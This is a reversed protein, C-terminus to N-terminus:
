NRPFKKSKARPEIRHHAAPLTGTVLPAGPSGPRPQNASSGEFSANTPAVSWSTCSTVSIARRCRSFPDAATPSPSGNRTAIMARRRIRGGELRVLDRMFLQMELFRELWPDSPEKGHELAARFTEFPVPGPAEGLRESLFREELFSMVMDFGTILTPM